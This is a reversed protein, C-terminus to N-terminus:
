LGCLIILLFTIDKPQSNMGKGLERNQARLIRTLAYFSWIFQHLAWFIDRRISVVTEPYPFPNQIYNQMVAGSCVLDTASLIKKEDIVRLSRQLILIAFPKELATTINLPIAYLIWKRITKNMVHRFPIQGIKASNYSVNDLVIFVYTGIHIFFVLINKLDIIDWSNQSIHISYM